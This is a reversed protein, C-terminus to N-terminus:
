ESDIAEQEADLVETLRIAWDRLKQWSEANLMSLILEYAQAPFDVGVSDDGSEYSLTIVADGHVPSMEEKVVKAMHYLKELDADEPSEKAQGITVEIRATTLSEALFTATNNVPSGNIIGMDDVWMNFCTMKNPAYKRENFQAPFSAVLSCGIKQSVKGLTGRQPVDVLELKKSNARILLAKYTKDEM